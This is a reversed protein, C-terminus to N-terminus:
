PRINFRKSAMNKATLTSQIQFTWEPENLRSLSNPNLWRGTPQHNFKANFKGGEPYASQM